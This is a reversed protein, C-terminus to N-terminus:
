NKLNRYLRKLTVQELYHQQRREMQQKDTPSSDEYGILHLFSHIIVLALERPFGTNFQEANELIRDVSIYVEGEVPQDSENFNFSITDTLVDDDFYQKKLRNLASDDSVILSIKEFTSDEDTAIKQLIAEVTPSLLQFNPYNNSITVIPM